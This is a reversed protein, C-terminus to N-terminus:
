REKVDVFMAVDTKLGGVPLSHMVSSLLFSLTFMLLVTRTDHHTAGCPKEEGLTALTLPLLTPQSSSASVALSDSHPSPPQLVAAVQWRRHPPFAEAAEFVRM